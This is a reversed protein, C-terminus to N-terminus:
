EADARGHAAPHRALAAATLISELRSATSGAAYSALVLAMAVGLVVAKTVLGPAAITMSLFPVAVVGLVFSALWNRDRSRELEGRLTM